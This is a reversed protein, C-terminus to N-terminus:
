DILSNWFIVTKAVGPNEHIYYIVPGGSFSAAVFSFSRYGVKKLLSVASALDRKAGEISFDTSNGHSEGHGRFDFRFADFGNDALSKALKRFVGSENKNSGIGHCLIIVSDSSESSHNLIGCLNLGDFNKFFIKSEGLNEKIM